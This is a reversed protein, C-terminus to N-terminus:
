ADIAEKLTKLDSEAQELEDDRKKLNEIAQQVFRESQEVRATANEIAWRVIIARDASYQNDYQLKGDTCCNPWGVAECQEEIISNRDYTWITTLRGFQDPSTVLSRLKEPDSRM